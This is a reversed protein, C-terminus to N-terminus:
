QCKWTSIIFPFVDWLATSLPLSISKELQFIFVLTIITFTSFDVDWFLRLQLHFGDERAGVHLPEPHSSVPIFLSSSSTPSITLTISTFFRWPAWWRPGGFRGLGRLGRPGGMEDRCLAILGFVTGWAAAQVTWRLSVPRRGQKLKYHSAEKM